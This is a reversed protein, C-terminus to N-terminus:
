RKGGAALHRYELLLFGLVGVAYSGLEAAQVDWPEKWTLWMLAALAAGRLATGGGFARWFAKPSVARGWAMAAVSLSSAAWALGLGLWCRRRLEGDLALSALAGAAAALVAGELASRVATAASERLASSNISAM